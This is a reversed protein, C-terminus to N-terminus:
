LRAGVSYGVFRFGGDTRFNFGVYAYPLLVFYHKLTHVFGDTTEESTAHFMNQLAPCATIDKMVGSNYTGDTELHGYTGTGDAKIQAKGASRGGGDKGNYVNVFKYEGVLNALTLTPLIKLAILFGKGEGMDLVFVANPDPAYAYGTLASAAGSLTVNFRSGMTADVTWTGTLDPSEVPFTGSFDEPALAPSGSKDGDGTAYVKVRVTGDDIVSLVGWERNDASGNVEEGSVIIYVYDGPLNKQVIAGATTQALGFSITNQANGTPFTAAILKDGLEVAHFVDADAKVQLVGEMDGSLVTYAHKVTKDTTENVVECTGAAPDITFVLLDGYSGSGGYTRPTGTTEDAAPTDTGGTADTGSESTGCAALAVVLAFLVTQFPTRM